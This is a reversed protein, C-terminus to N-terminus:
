AAPSDELYLRRNLSKVADTASKLLADRNPIPRGYYEYYANHGEPVDSPSRMGFTLLLHLSRLFGRTNMRAKVGQHDCHELGFVSGWSQGDPTKALTGIWSKLFELSVEDRLLVFYVARLLRNDEDFSFVTDTPCTMRQGITTLMQELEAAGLHPCRAFHGLADGMHAVAHAWGCQDTYGRLDREASLSSLAREYWGLVPDRSLFPSRGEILGLGCLQDAHLVMGLILASFARLFVTDSEAEGLGESLNDAMRQGIAVFQEDSYKGSEGWSWVIELSNERLFPDTSGLLTLLQELLEAVDAGAPVAFDSDLISQMTEKNVRIREISTHLSM